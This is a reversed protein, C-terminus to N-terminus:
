GPNAASPASWGIPRGNPLRVLDEEKAPNEGPTWRGELHIETTKGSVVVVPITLMGYEESQAMIQYTGAPLSVMQASQDMDGDHNHVWKVLKGEPTKVTYSTHVYYVQDKGIHKEETATLVVLRGTGSNLLFRSGAMQPGVPALAVPSSACSIFLLPLTVAMLSSAIQRPLHKKANM